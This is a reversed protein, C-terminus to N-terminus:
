PMCKEIFEGERGGGVPALYIAGSELFFNTYGYWGQNKPMEFNIRGCVVGNVERVVSTTVSRPNGLDPLAPAAAAIRGRLDAESPGSHYWIAVASLLLCVVLGILVYQPFTEGDDHVASRRDTGSRREVFGDTNDEM